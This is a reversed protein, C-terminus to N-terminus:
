FPRGHTLRIVPKALFPFKQFAGVFLNSLRSSGFFTQLVRGAQLRMAFHQQWQRVYANEYEAKSMKQQLFLDGLTAAIKATHLAISMGNGCLPTIMGATDGLMLVGNEVKTKQSFSIQSIAVPFEQLIDSRRFLKKLHPNQFLINEQMKEISNGNAKLNEARTM